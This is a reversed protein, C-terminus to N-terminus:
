VPKRSYSAEKGVSRKSDPSLACLHLSAVRRTNVSPVAPTPCRCIPLLDPESRDGHYM